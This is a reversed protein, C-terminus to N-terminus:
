PAPEASAAHALQKQKAIKAIVVQARELDALRLAIARIRAQAEPILRKELLNVRQAVKAIARDLRNVREIAIEEELRAAIAAEALDVAAEVWHPLALAPIPARAFRAKVLRPLAVGFREVEQTDVGQLRLLREVAIREDALMPLRAAAAQLAAGRARIAELAQAEGARAAILSRRKMELAPLYSQYASVARKERTLASKNLAQRAM